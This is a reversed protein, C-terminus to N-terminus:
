ARPSYGRLADTTVVKHASSPALAHHIMGAALDTATILAYRAKTDKAGLAGLFGLLADGVVKGMEEGLRHEDRDPGSIIAPRIATWALPGAELESEIRYRVSMYPNAPEKGGQGATKVGLASLYVFRGASDAAVMGDILMKTMGYDVREYSNADKPVGQKAERNARARTTGLLGFVVDPAREKIMSTIADAEWPTTDMTVGLPEWKRRWQDLRSSDPRVHAVVHVKRARLLRVVERGTYGTAGAVLATTPMAASPIM